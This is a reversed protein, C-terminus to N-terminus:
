GLQWQLLQLFEVGLNLGIHKLAQAQAARQVGAINQAAGGRGLDARLDGPVVRPQASLADISPAASNQCRTVRNPSICITKGAASIALQGASFRGSVRGKASRQNPANAIAMATAVAVFNANIPQPKPIPASLKVPMEPWAIIAAETYGTISAKNAELPEICSCFIANAIPAANASRTPTDRNCTCACEAESTM